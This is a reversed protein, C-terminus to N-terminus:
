WGRVILGYFCFCSMGGVSPTDNWAAEWDQWCVLCSHDTRLKPRRHIPFLVQFSDLRDRHNSLEEMKNLPSLGPQFPVSLLELNPLLELSLHMRPRLLRPSYESREEIGLELDGGGGGRIM